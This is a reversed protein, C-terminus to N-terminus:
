LSTVLPISGITQLVCLGGVGPARGRMGSTLNFYRKKKLECSVGQGPGGTFPELFSSIFVDGRPTQSSPPFLQLLKPGGGKKKKLRKKGAEGNQETFSVLM